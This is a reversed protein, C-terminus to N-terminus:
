GSSNCGADVVTVAGSRKAEIIQEWSLIVDYRICKPLHACRGSFFMAAVDELPLKKKFVNMNYMQGGFVYNIDYGGGITDQEQGLVLHGGQIIQGAPATGTTTIKVGNIYFDMNGPEWTFCLHYWEGKVLNVEEFFFNVNGSSSSTTLLHRSNAMLLISNDSKTTAYSFWPLGLSFITVNLWSCVSIAEQAEEFNPDLSVLNSISKEKPFYLASNFGDSCMQEFLLGCLIVFFM